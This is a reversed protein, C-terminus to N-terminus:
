SVALQPHLRTTAACYGQVPASCLALQVGGGICVEALNEEDEEYSQESRGYLSSVKRLELPVPACSQFDTFCTETIATCVKLKSFYYILIQWPRAAIHPVKLPTLLFFHTPPTTLSLVM